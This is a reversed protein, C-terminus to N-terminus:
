SYLKKKFNDMLGKLFKDRNEMEWKPFGIQDNIEFIKPTGDKDIGFDLSYIPNDYEVLFRKSVDEVVKKISEPVKTYDVETLNGGQAANATYTGKMPVRVHSWVVEGNVIAVRLDHLSDTVGPIGNSTDVFDQAIYRNYKESFKFNLAEEKPGIFVGVGKLGNFPKLVVWDTDIEIPVRPLDKESELYITKPMYKGIAGYTKWKDWCLIKFDLQNVVILPDAPIPFNVGGTRDYVLDIKIDSTVIEFKKHSYKWGGGFIGKGKYTKRTLVYPEWGEEEVLDLLRLYVPTKTGIHSIPSVGELEKSFCIGVKKM